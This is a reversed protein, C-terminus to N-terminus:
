YRPRFYAVGTREKGKRSNLYVRRVMGAGIMCVALDIKDKSERSKKAISVGWRNPARRANRVHLALRGDGDHTFRRVREGRDFSRRTEDIDELTQEVAATFEAIRQPSTMDWMVAHGRQGQSPVAWIKLQAKYRRHWEDFSADWYRDATEDDLVHSPDGFFAVVNFHEFAAQVATDVKDRPTTWTKGLDGGPNQWMGLVFRHGDSIRCGVLGTADDSKSCDLFLAVEEDGGVTADPDALLDWDRRDAWADEAATVQNYWKRRSESAPNAGNLISKVIRRINLWSSDGRVARLVDPAAEATLPADPPAELSDYVTGYDAAAGEELQTAEWAERVQRGVSEVGARPANCIDLIRARAGESKAANGDIVGAMEVGGNGPTWNQIENRVIQTPRGGELALPSATVAEIQRRDGDAWINTKGIQIGYRLRTAAPVLAPFLKMTNQTQVLSVAVLQIWADPEDRGVPRDGVWHDFTVPAFMGAMSVCAAVPDKGWGKLRQLVYHPSQEGNGDVAYYWLLFRAQEATFKWPGSKGRLWQGCWALMGWGLTAEPLVWGNDWQWTPGIRVPEWVLDAPPPTDELLDRYWRVIEASEDDVVAVSRSRAM